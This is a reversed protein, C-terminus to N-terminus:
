GRGSPSPIAKGCETCTASAGIPYACAPCLGRKIRRRRRVLGPAAFLLWGGWLIAAYFITNIAFGPWIPLVPLLRHCLPGREGVPVGLLVQEGVLSDWLRRSLMSLVPWGCAQEYVWTGRKIAEDRPPASAISWHPPQWDVPPYTYSHIRSHVSVAFRLNLEKSLWVPSESPIGTMMSGGLYMQNPSYRLAFGWAVAVNVIAGLLLFVCVRTMRRKM